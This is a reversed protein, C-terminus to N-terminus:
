PRANVGIKYRMQVGRYEKTKVMLVFMLKEDALIQSNKSVALFAVKM